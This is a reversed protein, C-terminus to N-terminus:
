SKKQSRGRGRGPHESDDSPRRCGKDATDINGDADNDLGDDCVLDASRESDDTPGSCGPDQADILGDEDNDAGDDCAV